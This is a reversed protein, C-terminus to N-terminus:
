KGHSGRIDDDHSEGYRCLNEERRMSVDAEPERLGGLVGVGGGRSLADVRGSRSGGAIIFGFVIIRSAVSISIGIGDMAKGVDGMTVEGGFWRLVGFDSFWIGEVAGVGVLEAGEYNLALKIELVM